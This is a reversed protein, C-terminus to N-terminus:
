YDKLEGLKLTGHYQIYGNGTFEMKYEECEVRINGGFSLVISLDFDDKKFKKFFTYFDLLSEHNIPEDIEDINDILFLIRRAIDISNAKATYNGIADIVDKISNLQKDDSRM